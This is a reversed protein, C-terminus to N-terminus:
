GDKFHVCAFFFLVMGEIVRLSSSYAGKNRRM